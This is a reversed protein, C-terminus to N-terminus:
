EDTGPVWGTDPAGAAVWATIARVLAPDLAGRGLPMRGGFGPALTGTVKHVLLSTLPDGAGPATVSVRTWGAAAAAGNTPIVGVLSALAAGRELLL